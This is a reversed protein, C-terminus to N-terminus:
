EEAQPSSRFPLVEGRYPARKPNPGSRRMYLLFIGFLFLIVAFSWGLYLLVAMQLWHFVM